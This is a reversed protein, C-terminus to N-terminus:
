LSLGIDRIGLFTCVQMLTMKQKVISQATCMQLLSSTGTRSFFTVASGRHLTVFACKKVALFVNLSILISYFVTSYCYSRVDYM